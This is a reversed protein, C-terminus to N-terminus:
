ESCSSTRVYDRPQSCLVQFINGMVVIDDSITRHKWRVETERLSSVFTWRVWRTLPCGGPRPPSLLEELDGVTVSTRGAADDGGELGRSVWRVHGGGWGPTTRGPTAVTFCARRSTKSTLVTGGPLRTDCGEGM